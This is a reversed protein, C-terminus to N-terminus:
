GLVSTYVFLLVSVVNKVTKPLAFAAKYSLRSMQLVAIRRKAKGGIIIKYLRTERRSTSLDM